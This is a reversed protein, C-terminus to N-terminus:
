GQRLSIYLTQGVTPWVISIFGLVVLSYNQAIKFVRAQPILAMINRAIYGRQPRASQVSALTRLFTLERSFIASLVPEKSAPLLEQFARIAELLGSTANFYHALLERRRSGSFTSTNSAHLRYRTLPEGTALLTGPTILAVAFFFTDESRPIRHLVEVWPELVTKLVAMSSSNFDADLAGLAALQSVVVPSQTSVFASRKVGGFLGLRRQPRPIARGESDILTVSHHIYTLGPNERFSRLVTELKTPEWEDDDHLFCLIRGRSARVGEAFVPGIGTERVKRLVRPVAPRRMLANEAKRAVSDAAYVIVVEFESDSITQSVLSDIARSVFESRIAATVVVSISVPAPTIEARQNAINVISESGV